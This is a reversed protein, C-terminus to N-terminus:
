HTIEEWGNPLHIGSESTANKANEADEKALRERKEFIKQQSIKKQLKVMGDFFAEPRPPCGPM